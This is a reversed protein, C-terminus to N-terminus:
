EPIEIFRENHKSLTPYLGPFDVGTFGLQRVMAVFESTLTDFNQGWLRANEAKDANNANHPHPDGNSEKTQVDALQDALSRLKAVKSLKIGYTSAFRKRVAFMMMRREANQTPPTPYM